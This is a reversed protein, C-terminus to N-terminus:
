GRPSAFFLMTSKGFQRRYCPFINVTCYSFSYATDRFLSVFVVRAEERGPQLPMGAHLRDRGAVFTPAPKKFDGQSREELDIVAHKSVM